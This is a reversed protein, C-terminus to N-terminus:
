PQPQPQSTTTFNPILPLLLEHARSLPEAIPQTGRTSSIVYAWHSSDHPSGFHLVLAFGSDQVVLGLTQVENACTHIHNLSWDITMGRSQVLMEQIASEM